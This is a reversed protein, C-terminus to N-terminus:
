RAVAISAGSVDVGTLQAGRWALLLSHEGLGCGVDLVRKGTLDGLSEYAVELRYLV